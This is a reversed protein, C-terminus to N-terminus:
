GGPGSGRNQECYQGAIAAHDAVVHAPANVMNHRMHLASQADAGCNAKFV